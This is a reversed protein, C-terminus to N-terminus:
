KKIINIHELVHYVCQQLKMGIILYIVHLVDEVQSIHYIKLVSVNKVKYIMFILIQANQVYNLINIGIILIVVRYVVIVKYFHVYLLVFVDEKIYIMNFHNHVDKVIIQHKIGIYHYIM